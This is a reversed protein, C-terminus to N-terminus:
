RGDGKALKKKLAKLDTEVQAAVRKEERARAAAATAAAAAAAARAEAADREARAREAERREAEEPTEEVAKKADRVIESGIQWGMGQVIYRLFSM